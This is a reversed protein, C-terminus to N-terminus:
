QKAHKKGGKPAIVPDAKVPQPLQRQDLAVAFMKGLGEMLMGLAEAPLSGDQANGGMVQKTAPSRDLVAEAAALREKPAGFDMVEELVDVAKNTISLLKREVSQRVPQLADDLSAETLYKNAEIEDSRLRTLLTPPLANM